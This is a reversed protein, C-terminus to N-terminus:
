HQQDVRRAAALACQVRDAEPCARSCKFKVHSAPLGSAIRLNGNPCDPEAESREEQSGQDGQTLPLLVVVATGYSGAPDPDLHISGGHQRVIRQVIALGLGTGRASTTFFPEFIRDAIEPSIGPGNDQVRVEVSPRSEHLLCRSTISIKGWEPVANIANSLLNQFLQLLKNRDAMITPFKYEGGIQFNVFKRTMEPLLSISATKITDGLDVWDFEATGPRAFTLMDNLINEMYLVQGLATECNDIESDGSDKHHSELMQLNMKVSSLANRLDHAIMSAMQGMSSQESTKGTKRFEDAMRNIAKGLTAFEDDGTVQMVVDQRGIAILDAAKTLDAIPRLLRSVAVFIALVMLLGVGIVVIALPNQIAMVRERMDALSRSGGVIVANGHGKADSADLVVRSVGLILDLPLEFVTHPQAGLLLREWSAALQFDHVANASKNQLKTAAAPRSQYLYNGKSDAVWYSIDSHTAIQERIVQDISLVVALAGVVNQAKDRVPMTVFLSKEAAGVNDSDTADGNLSILGQREALLGRYDGDAGPSNIETIIETGVRTSTLVQTQGAGAVLVKAHRYAPRERMMMNIQDSALRMGGAREEVIHGAGGEALM